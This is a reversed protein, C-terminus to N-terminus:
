HVQQEPEDSTGCVGEVSVSTGSRVSFAALVMQQVDAVHEEAARAAEDGDFQKIAKAIAIHQHSCRVADGVNPVDRDRLVATLVRATETLELLQANGAAEAAGKHFLQDWRRFGEIDGGNACELCSTATDLLRRRQEDTARDAAMKAVAAELVQRVEFSSRITEFSPLVVRSGRAGNPEILGVSQLRLLAERVPTKSVRLMRALDVESVATGPRLDKRVIADRISDYVLQTLSERYSALPALV